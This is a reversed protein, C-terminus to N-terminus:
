ETVAEDIAPQDSATFTGDANLAGSVVLATGDTVAEDIGGDWIVNIAAGQSELTFRYGEAADVPLVEGRVYGCVKTTEGTMSEAQDLLGKVTLSGEASEYKSPCKTVLETATLTNDSEVTGTCIAVVGTGFTAPLAGDYRVTLTEQGSAAASGEEPQIEFLATSGESTLSDAVVSGSVQVKKGRYDGSVVDAISLSSAAGGSGAIAVIVLMAVVIIGGVVVLRRKASRNM